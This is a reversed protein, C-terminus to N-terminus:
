GAQDQRESLAQFTTPFGNEVDVLVVSHASRLEDVVNAAGEDYVGGGINRLLKRIESQAVIRSREAGADHSILLVGDADAFSGQRQRDAEGAFSGAGQRRAHRIDAYTGIPADPGAPGAFMGVPENRVDHLRCPRLLRIDPGPVGARRLQQMAQRAAAESPYAKSVPVMPAEKPAQRKPGLQITLVAAAWTYPNRYGDGAATGQVRPMATPSRCDSTDAATSVLALV